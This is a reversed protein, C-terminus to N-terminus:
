GSGSPPEQGADSGPSVGAGLAARRGALLELLEEMRGPLGPLRLARGLQRYGKRACAEDRCLWAGRGPLRRRADVVIGDSALALRM